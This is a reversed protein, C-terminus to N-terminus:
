LFNLSDAKPIQGKGATNEKKGEMGKCNVIDEGSHPSPSLLLTVHVFTVSGYVRTTLRM